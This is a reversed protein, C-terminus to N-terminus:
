LLEVQYDGGIVLYESEGHLAHHPLLQNFFVIKVVPVAVKLVTDGFEGATSELNTFSTLNNFRVIKQRKQKTDAVCQKEVANVGRYLTIFKEAPQKFRDIFWQCFEYLLDLQMYICNNHYRSHMKDEVYQIWVKDYLANIAHKHYTPYLGFRSEVWGKLVAAQLNNSDMGWDQILRLYSNRYRRKDTQKASHNQPNEGFVDHMYYQFLEGCEQPTALTALASFLSHASDRTGAIQLAVPNANFETSTILGSAVGVMNTSHLLSYDRVEKETTVQNM